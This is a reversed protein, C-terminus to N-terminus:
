TEKQKVSMKTFDVGHFLEAWAQAKQSFTLQEAANLARWDHYGLSMNRRILLFMAFGRFEDTRLETPGVFLNANWTLERKKKKLGFLAADDETVGIKRKRQAAKGHSM